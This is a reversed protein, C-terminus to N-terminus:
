QPLILMVSPLTAAVIHIKSKSPNVELFLDAYVRELVNVDEQLEAESNASGLPKVLVLDDPFM